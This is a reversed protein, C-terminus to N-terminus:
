HLIQQEAEVKKTIDNTIAIHATEGNTLKYPAAYTEMWRRAGKMSLMEFVLDGKKLYFLV